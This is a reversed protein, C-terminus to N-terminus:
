NKGRNLREEYIKNENILKNREEKLKEYEVLIENYKKELIAIKELEESSTKGQEEARESANKKLDNIRRKGHLFSEQIKLQKDDSSDTEFVREELQQHYKRIDLTDIEKKREEVAFSFVSLCILGILIKKM